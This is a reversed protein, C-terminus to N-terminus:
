SVLKIKGDRQERGEKHRIEMAIIEEIYIGDEETCEIGYHKEKKWTLMSVDEGRQAWFIKNGHTVDFDNTSEYCLASGSSFNEKSYKSQTDVCQSVNINCKQNRSETPVLASFYSAKIVKDEKIDNLSSVRKSNRTIEQPNPYNGQAKDNSLVRVM